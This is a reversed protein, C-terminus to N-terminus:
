VGLCSAALDSMHGDWSVTSTVNQEPDLRAKTNLTLLCQLERNM